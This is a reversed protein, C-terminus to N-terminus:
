VLVLPSSSNIMDAVDRVSALWSFSIRSCRLNTRLPLFADQCAGHERPGKGQLQSGPLTGRHISSGIELPPGLQARSLSGPQAVTSAHTLRAPSRLLESKWGGEVGDRCLAGSAPSFVLELPPLQGLHLRSSAHM